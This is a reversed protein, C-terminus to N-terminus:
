LCVCAFYITNPNQSLCSHHGLPPRDLSAEQHENIVCDGKRSIISDIVQESDTYHMPLSSHTMGETTQEGLITAEQRTLVSEQQDKQVYVSTYLFCSNRFAGSSSSSPHGGTLRTLLLAPVMAGLWFRLLSFEALLRTPLTLRGEILKWILALWHRSQQGRLSLLQVGLNGGWLDGPSYRHPLKLQQIAAM